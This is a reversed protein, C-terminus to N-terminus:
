GDGIKPPEQDAMAGGARCRSAMSVACWGTSRRHPALSVPHPAMVVGTLLTSDVPPM